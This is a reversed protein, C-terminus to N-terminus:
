SGSLTMGDILLTMGAAGGPLWTLDAGVEVIDLLMRQLTSALTVERVPEAFAGDRIMLGDAGVSFDGSVVNTGSHLGSVSQVYLAEGAVALIEDQSRVGPVLSLARAGVGPPSTYGARVASATTKAGARRASFVNHLVGTLTGGTILEVPRTPIGESDHAAAGFAEARTADDLLTVGPAAVQEGSRGAFLSRGKLIAEGNLAAGVLALLSRSVLPDLVVATRRSPVPRAGLLRVARMAADRAAADVDLESVARGASFGVGSRTDAGDGALAHAACSAMTRRATSAIGTSTVVAMEAAADGYTASEVGRLRPDAARAAAELSLALAVKDATSVGLLEDRWLDLPVPDVGACDSPAALGAHEDPEGFRANDRAEALTEEVVAPDLTGAWAYGQRGDVVVRVGVGETEAVTLSEVDGDFVKVDTERVRAVYAEVQEDGSAQSAVRTALALLDPEPM